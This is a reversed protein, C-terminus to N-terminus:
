PPSNSDPGLPARAAMVSNALEALNILVIPEQNVLVTAHILGPSLNLPSPALPLQDPVLLASAGSQIPYALTHLTTDSAFRAVLYYPSTYILPFPPQCLAAALDIIPIIHDKWESIGQVYFPAFPVSTVPLAKVIEAVELLPIAFKTDSLGPLTFSLLQPLGHEARM